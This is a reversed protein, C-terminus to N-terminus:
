DRKDALRRRQLAESAHAGCLYAEDIIVGAAHDCGGMSCVSPGGSHETTENTTPAQDAESNLLDVAAEIMDIIQRLAVARERDANRLERRCGAVVLRLDAIIRELESRPIAMSCIMGSM